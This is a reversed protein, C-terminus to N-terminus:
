SAMASGIPASSPPVCSRCGARCRRDARQRQGPLAPARAAAGRTGHSPLGQELLARLAEDALADLRSDLAAAGSEDLPAEVSAERIVSQDALGMGYASLVGALPHVFIRDIGLADAVLCAHQGGAGGFCQLTYRTVDYGRAVSIKKIANAMSGVAIQLFGEATAEPSGSSVPPRPSGSRLPRSVAVVVDRDLPADAAAGFVHPFHAPQIKGLMVNADTVTLPGGRRYCAPGPDAGASHPGARLRAGDFGLISGGGAAVTHISMMPARMRVGAVRTEFAREFEGAYHSVDTSTGGM